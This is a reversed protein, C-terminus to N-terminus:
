AGTLHTGNTAATTITDDWVHKLSFCVTTFSTSDPKSMLAIKAKDLARQLNKM